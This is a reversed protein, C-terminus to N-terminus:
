TAKNARRTNPLFLRQTYGNGLGRPQSKNRMESATTNRARIRSERGGDSKGDAGHGCIWEPRKFFAFVVVGSIRSSSFRSLIPKLIETTVQMPGHEFHKIRSVFRCM